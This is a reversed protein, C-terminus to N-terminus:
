VTRAGTTVKQTGRFGSGLKPPNKKREEIIGAREEPTLNDANIPQEPIGRVLGIGPIKETRELFAIVHKKWVVEVVDEVTTETGSEGKAGKVNMTVTKPTVKDPIARRFEQIEAENLDDLDIYTPSTGDKEVWALRFLLYAGSQAPTIGDKARAPVVTLKGISGGPSYWVNPKSM